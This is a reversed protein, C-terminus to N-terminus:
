KIRIPIGCVVETVRDALKALACNIKGLLERYQETEESYDDIDSCVENTVVVLNDTQGALRRVGSIVAEYARGYADGSIHVSEAEKQDAIDDRYLENATLNSVCELLIGGNEPLELEALDRYREVTLFGADLRQERHRKIRALAEEGEPIMAAVYIFPLYRDPACGEGARAGARVTQAEAYVSKGSGSGGTILHIM